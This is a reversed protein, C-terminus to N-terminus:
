THYFRTYFHVLFLVDLTFPDSGLLFLHMTPYNMQFLSFSRCDWVTPNLRKRRDPSRIASWAWSSLSIPLSFCSEASFRIFRHHSLSGSAGRAARSIIWSWQSGEYSEVIGRGTWVVMCVDDRLPMKISWKKKRFTRNPRLKLGGVCLWCVQGNTNAKAPLIHVPNLWKWVVVIVNHGATLM